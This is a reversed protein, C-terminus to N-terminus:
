ATRKWIYATFYPQLNNHGVPKWSTSSNLVIGPRNVFTGAKTLGYGSIDERLPTTFGVENKDHDKSIDLIHNKEGGTKGAVFDSDAEDVGVLVKGKIREWTGGMTTAPSVSNVSQFISGVPYFMDLLSKGNIQLGTKFNKTGEITENGTKKVVVNDLDAIAKTHTKPYLITGKEELQVIDAM